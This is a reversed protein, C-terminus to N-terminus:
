ADGKEIAEILDAIEDGSPIKKRALYADVASFALYERYTSGFLGSDALKVRYESAEATDGRKLASNYKSWVDGRDDNSTSDLGFFPSTLIQETTLYQHPPMNDEIETKKGENVKLLLIKTDANASKIVLPDHTSIIFLVQPFVEQLVGVVRLKLRPHLHLEIEDILVVTSSLAVKLTYVGDKQQSYLKSVIMYFVIMLSRYGSSFEDLYKREAGGQYTLWYCLGGETCFYYSNPLDLLVKLQRAVWHMLEGDELNELLWSQFGNIRNKSIRGESIKIVNCVERRGQVGSDSALRILSDNNAYRVTVFPDVNVTEAKKDVFSRFDIKGRPKITKEILEILTSKGVGNEGLLLVSNKGFFEIKQNDEFTRIGNFVIEKLGSFSTYINNVKRKGDLARYVSQKYKFDDITSEKAQYYGMGDNHNLGNTFEKITGAKLCYWQDLPLASEDIDAYFQPHDDQRISQFISNRREVLGTRNLSFIEITRAARYSLPKLVGEPDYRFHLDVPEVLPLLIEPEFRLLGSVDGKKVSEFKKRYNLKLKGAYSCCTKCIVSSSRLDDLLWLNVGSGDHLHCPVINRSEEGCYFCYSRSKVYHSHTYERNNEIKDTLERVVSVEFQYLDTGLPLQYEINSISGEPVSNQESNFVIPFM